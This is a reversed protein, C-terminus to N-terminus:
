INNKFIIIYLSLSFLFLTPSIAIIIPNINVLLALSSLLKNVFFYGVGLFIGAFLKSGLNINRRNNPIFGICILAMAICSFPYVIKEWYSILYKKTSQHSKDLQFIYNSLNIISMNEPEIILVNFYKPDISTIWKLNAKKTYTIKDPEYLAETTNNLIWYKNLYDYIATKATIYSILQFKNNYKLIRINEITSNPYIQNINIFNNNGDKTWIGSHLQISYLEHTRSKKYINSYNNTRPIIFEGFIFLVITYVLGFFFLIKTISFVSVGSTRIVAYESYNVMNLLSLMVGILISMPLLLYISNPIQLFTYVILSTLKFDAKGLNDIQGLLSFISFIIILSLLVLQTNIFCKKLIYSPILKM